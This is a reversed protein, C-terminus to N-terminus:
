KRRNCWCPKMKPSIKKKHVSYHCNWNALNYVQELDFWESSHSYVLFCEKCMKRFSSIYSLFVEVTKWNVYIYYPNSHTIGGLGWFLIRIFLNTKWLLKKWCKALLHVFWDKSLKPFSCHYPLWASFVVLFESLYSSVQSSIQRWYSVYQFRTLWEEKGTESNSLGCAICTSLSLFSFLFYFLM